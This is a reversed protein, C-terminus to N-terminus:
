RGSRFVAFGGGTRCQQRDMPPAEGSYAAIVEGKGDGDLDRIRVDFGDCGHLDQPTAIAADRTFGRRGHSVFTLITGDSQIAALDDDGDGDLDGTALEAITSRTEDVWLVAADDGDTSLEVLQLMACSLENEVHRTAAVIARGTIGVATVSANRPLSTLDRLVWGDPRGLHLVRRMGFYNSSIVADVSGDGDVDDTALSTGFSQVTPPELREWEGGRNLWVALAPNSMASRAMLAPGENLAVIDLRGDGDWDALEIARSAFPLDGPSRQPLAYKLGESWLAFQGADNIMATVGRLHSGLALDPTGDGDLDGARIEGYDYPLPPFTIERWRAFGFAGDGLYVAPIRRGKRVPGTVLDLHGDGNMDAIDFGDRQQGSRPLDTAVEAFALQSSVAAGGSGCATPVPPTLHTACAGLFLSAAFVFSHRM